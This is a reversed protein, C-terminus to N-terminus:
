HPNGNSRLEIQLQKSNCTENELQTKLRMNESVLTQNLNELYECRALLTQLEKQNHNYTSPQSETTQDYDTSKKEEAKRNAIYSNGLNQVMNELEDFIGGM